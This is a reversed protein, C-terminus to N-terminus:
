EPGLSAGLRVTPPAGASFYVIRRGSAAAAVPGLAGLVHALGAVFLALQLAVAGGLLLVVARSHLAAPYRADHRVLACLLQAAAGLVLAEYLAPGAV